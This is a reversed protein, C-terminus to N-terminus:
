ELTRLCLLRYFSSRRHGVMCNIDPVQSMHSVYKTTSSSSAVSTKPKKPAITKKSVVKKKGTIKMSLPPDPGLMTIQGHDSAQGAGHPESPNAEFWLMTPALNPAGPQQIVKERFRGEEPPRKDSKRPKRKAPSKRKSTVEVPRPPPLGSPPIPEDDDILQDEQDDEEEEGDEEANTSHPQQQQQQHHRSAPPVTSATPKDKIVLKIRKAKLPPPSAEERLTSIQPADM